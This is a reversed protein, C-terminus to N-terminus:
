HVCVDVKMGSASAIREGGETTMIRKDGAKCLVLCM